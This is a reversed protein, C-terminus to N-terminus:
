KGCRGAFFIAYLVLYVLGFIFAFVARIVCWGSSIGSAMNCSWSLYAACCGLAISVLGSLLSFAGGGDGGDVFSEERQQRVSNRAFHFLGLADM